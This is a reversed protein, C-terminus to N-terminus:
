GLSRYLADYEMEGELHRFWPQWRGSRTMCEKPLELGRQTEFSVRYFELQDVFQALLAIRAECGDFWRIRLSKLCFGADSRAKLVEKLLEVDFVDRLELTSLLSSPVGSGGPDLMSFFMSDLGEDPCAEIVLTELNRLVYIPPVEYSHIYRNMHLWLERLPYEKHTKEAIWWFHHRGPYCPYVLRTHAIGNTAHLIAVGLSPCILELKTAACPSFEPAITEPFIAGIEMSVNTFQM